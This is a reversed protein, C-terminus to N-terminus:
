RTLHVHSSASLEQLMLVVAVTIWVAWWPAVSIVRGRCIRGKEWRLLKQLKLLFGVCHKGLVTVKVVVLGKGGDIEVVRIGLTEVGAEQDLLDHVRIGEYLTSSPVADVDHHAVHLFGWFHAVLHDWGGHDRKLHRLWVLYSINCDMAAGRLTSTLLNAQRCFEAVSDVRVLEVDGGDTAKDFGVLIWEPACHLIDVDALLSVDGVRSTQLVLVSRLRLFLSESLKNAFALM